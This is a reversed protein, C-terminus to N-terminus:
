HITKTPESDDFLNNIDEHGYIYGQKCFECNITIQGLELLISNLEEFGLSILAKDMREKSCSCAFQIPSEELFRLQEEHFLRHMLETSTLTLLEQTSLTAALIKLSEWHLEREDSEKVLQAPLQQLMFGVAHDGECVIFFHSQLQESQIFYAQLCEGLNNGELPVIGQYAEGVDPEITIALTAGEFRAFNFNNLENAFWAEQYQAFARVDGQHNCEAIIM